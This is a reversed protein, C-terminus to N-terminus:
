PLRRPVGLVLLSLTVAISATLLVEIAVTAAKALNEPYLFFTGVLAGAAAFLLFFGPGVVILLRLSVSSVAPPEVLGAMAALLWVAALITGAQFAGGPADAGAWLIHVGVLLGIAPLLRGFYALVGDTRAHHRLGPVGGWFRDSTLSWVAILAILLMIAELLTDYGRFNLLVATVPNGLGSAELNQGVPPRPVPGRDLLTSVAAIIAVAAAAIAATIAARYLTFGSKRLHPGNATEAHAKIRAFAGVLLIGTLGAGIAAEALAVDVADLRVWAVALLLGYIIFFVIAALLDRALVASLAAAAILMCLLLDFLQASTV